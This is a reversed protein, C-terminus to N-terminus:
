KSKDYNALERVLRIFLQHRAAKRVSQSIIKVLMPTITNKIHSEDNEDDSESLRAGVCRRPQELEGETCENDLRRILTIRNSDM